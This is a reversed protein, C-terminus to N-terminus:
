NTKFARAYAIRKAIPPHDYLFIEIFTSPEFEALNKEGLKRIMGIFGEPNRTTEIAFKDAQRELRRSYGNLVPATMFIFLSFSLLLIPLFAIDDLGSLQYADVAFRLFLHILYFGAFVVSANALLLKAIDKHKYHALEHAVVIEIEEESFDKLLTDGLVVRRNNGLGCLFANAKNSKASMDIAFIDKLGVECKKFLAFMRARLSEKGIPQYKYFLPIIVDPTIKALIFSFFFWFSGAAIWWYLPFRGLFLYVAEILIMAMALGLLAGKLEDKFWAIFTQNSLGFKHEWFFGSFLHTPFHFAYLFSSFVVVYAAHVVMPHATHAMVANKLAVSMGSAFFFLLLLCDLGLSFFFLGNKMRQYDRSRSLDSL